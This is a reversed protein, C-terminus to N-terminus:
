DRFTQSHSLFFHFKSAARNFRFGNHRSAFFSRSLFNYDRMTKDRGIRASLCNFTPLQIFIIKTCTKKNTSCHKRIQYRCLSIHLAACKTQVAFKRNWMWNARSQQTSHKILLPVSFIHSPFLFFHAHTFSFFLFLSQSLTCACVFPCCRM